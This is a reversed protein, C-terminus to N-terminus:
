WNLKFGATISKSSTPQGPDTVSSKVQLPGYIKQEASFTHHTLNELSSSSSAAVLTTGTPAINLKVKRESDWIQPVTGPNSCPIAAPYNETMSLDNQLM